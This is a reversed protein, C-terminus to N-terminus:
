VRSEETRFMRSILRRRNMSFGGLYECDDVQRILEEKLLQRAEDEYEVFREYEEDTMDLEVVFAVCHKKKEEAKLLNILRIV